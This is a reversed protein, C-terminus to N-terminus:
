PIAWSEKNIYLTDSMYKATEPYQDILQMWRFEFLKVCLSNRCTYFKHHFEEFRTGLKGKLKKRLNLDIHFICLLHSTDPHVEKIASILSPDSDTFIVGPNIGTEEFLTMFIWRFTDLTEDEIIASAVIRTKFHNDIIIIVCLMMRFRNTNSTTDLIVVDHFNEYLDRQSPSM